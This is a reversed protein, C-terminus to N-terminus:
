IAEVSLTNIAVRGKFDSEYHLDCLYRVHPKEPNYSEWSIKWDASYHCRRGECTRAPVETPEETTTAM